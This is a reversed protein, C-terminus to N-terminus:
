RGAIVVELWRGGSGRNLPRDGPWGFRVARANCGSCDERDDSDDRGSWGALWRRAGTVTRLWRGGSGRDLPRDGPWGFRVVRVNCGSCDDCDDSDDRGSWGAGHAPSLGCGGAEAAETWPDTGIRNPVFIAM